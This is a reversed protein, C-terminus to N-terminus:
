RTYILLSIIPIGLFLIELSGTFKAGEIVQTFLLVLNTWAYVGSFIEVITQTTQSYYPRNYLYSVFTLLSLAVLVISKFLAYQYGSFFTFVFVYIAKSFLLVMDTKANVKSTPDRTYRNEFNLITTVFTMM